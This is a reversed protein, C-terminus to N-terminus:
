FLGIENTGGEENVNREADLGRRKERWDASPKVDCGPGEDSM